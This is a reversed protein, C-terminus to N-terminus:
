PTSCDVIVTKTELYNQLADTSLERGVGSQKYGGFPSDYFIGLYTNNGVQGCQLKRVVTNAKSKDQTFVGGVLGYDSDNAISLAEELSGEGSKFKQITVVPGFIEERVIKMDRHCDAFITPEVFFGPRDMQSGGTVLRAGESKGAEIYGLIKDLQNQSIVPGKTFEGDRWYGFSNAGM